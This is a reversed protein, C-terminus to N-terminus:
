IYLPAMRRWYHPRHADNDWTYLQHTIDREWLLQSLRNNSEYFPDTEGVALIIEMSKLSAILNSDQLNSLYQEPMNFYVLEDRFGGMLDIFPNLAQTLDYRGSIGVTKKFLQPYKLSLNIAHYAGMSFGVTEIGNPTGKQYMLPIVEDLLYREYQLHRAMRVSPFVSQNYFSEADVSDMCFLQLEGKEIKGSLAHVIGWNEYDYFRAMRTPFMLVARGSHGFVLLEMNRELHKSYWKHYERHM